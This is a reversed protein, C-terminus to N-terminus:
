SGVPGLRAVCSHGVHLETFGTQNKSWLSSSMAIIASVTDNSKIMVTGPKACANTSEVVCAEKSKNQREISHRESHKYGANNLENFLYFEM